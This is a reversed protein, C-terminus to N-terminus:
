GWRLGGDAGSNGGDFAHPIGALMGDTSSSSGSFKRSM